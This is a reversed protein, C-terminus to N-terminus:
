KSSIAASETSLGAPVRVFLDFDNGVDTADIPHRSSFTVVAGTADVQPAGSEEAWGGAATASIWTTQNTARDFLFVDPLLNIDDAAAACRRACVLDSANSQFAVFRGDASIAPSASAGNGTGGAASRSVLTTSGNRLDRVFVDTSRNRDRRVLTTAESVFALYRGDRSISPHDSPGNALAGNTGVSALTTTGLTRDRVYVQARLGARAGATTSSGAGDLSATSTFAVFRGDGSIAPSFSAGTSPQVGHSDVSVRTIVRTTTDFAYVDDCPGNADPGDVLTTGASAFVVVHGDDSIAPHRSAAPVSRSDGRVSTATNRIRDRIVIDTDLRGDATVAVTDFVLYRGDGSLRPYSSDGTLPHDDATVSELTVAGSIRDLVYIDARSDTDAPVLRAYSSLAIYRGDASVSAPAPSTAFRWSDGQPVTLLIDGDPAAAWALLGAVTVATWAYAHM